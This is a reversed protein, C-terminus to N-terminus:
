TNKLKTILSDLEKRIRQCSSELLSVEGKLREIQLIVEYNEGAEVSPSDVLVKASGSLENHEAKNLFDKTENYLAVDRPSRGKWDKIGLGQPFANVMAKVFDLPAGSEVACHLITYGRPHRYRAENPHMSVRKMAASWDSRLILDFLIPPSTDFGNSFLRLYINSPNLMRFHSSSFRPHMM